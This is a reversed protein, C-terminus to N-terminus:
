LSEARRRRRLAYLDDSIPVIAFLLLLSALPLTAIYGFSAFASAGFFGGVVFMGLLSCLVTLRAWNARVFRADTPHMGRNWYFARGLEIGIDTVLGTMHTTRIEAKSIKTIMANQLGMVYCLLAATSPIDGFRHRFLGEGLLGFVLLLLAEILLPLAYRSQVGRHKGWNILITSTAAGSAFCVIAAVAAAVLITHGLVSNDAISSVIGSMHSTYQGVVLFGGANSAGAVFALACGLQRNSAETRIPSTLGRLFDIAM